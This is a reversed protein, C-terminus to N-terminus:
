DVNNYFVHNGITACPEKGRAWSPTQIKNPAFYHTAGNTPDRGQNNMVRAAISMDEQIQPSGPSLSQMQPLNPDGSNWCSFQYPKKCVGGYGQGYRLFHLYLISTM